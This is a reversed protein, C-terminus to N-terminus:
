IARKTEKYEVIERQLKNRVQNISKRLNSTTAEARISKGPLRMQAEARFIDGKRHHKSTRGIEVWIEVDKEQLTKELKALPELRMRVWQELAGTLEINTAKIIINM